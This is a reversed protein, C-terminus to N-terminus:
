MVRKGLYAGGRVDAGTYIEVIKLGAETMASEYEERSFLGIEMSQKHYTVDDNKGLLHHFTVEVVKPEKLRVQEMRAIKFEPKDVSDVVLLAQFDEETSWPTILAIGNPRLHLAIRKMSAKLNDVTKVFGISGYLCIMADFTADLEFDILNGLHFTIDPFKRKALNLMDPSLDLGSVSYQDKFYPIHGGTGCALILLDGKTPVGHKALLEKIKRAEPAYEEDKVYLTDYYNSIVEFDSYL